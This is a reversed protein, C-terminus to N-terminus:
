CRGYLALETLLKLRHHPGSGPQLQKDELQLGVSRQQRFLQDVLFTCQGIREELSGPFDDLNLLLSPSGLRNQRKVKYEDHRASLKWHISKLPDSSSYNDISRLEGDIGPRTTEHQRTQRGVGDGLPLNASHPCPFVLVQQQLSLRRSRIFFNIPFCSRIWIPPLTQYGRGPLTVALPRRETKGPALIPFLRTGTGIEVSILFAPLWRRHNSLEIEVRGPLTAFLDDAPLVKAQLRQLNQQGLLGSIAMFGLLASIMLYLLNNGTNVAAFGLLLTLVIYIIGARTLKM